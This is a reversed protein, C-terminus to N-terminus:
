KKMYIYMIAIIILLFILINGYFYVNHYFKNKKQLNNMQAANQTRADGSVRAQEIERKIDILVQKNENVEKTKQELEQHQEMLLDVDNSLLDLMQKNLTDLQRKYKEKMVADNASGSSFQAYKSLLENNHYNNIKTLKDLRVEDYTKLNPCSM